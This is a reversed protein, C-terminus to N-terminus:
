IIVICPLIISSVNCFALVMMSLPHGVTKLYVGFVADPHCGPKLVGQSIFSGKRFLDEDLASFLIQLCGNDGLPHLTNQPICFSGQVSALSRLAAMARGVLHPVHIEGRCWILHNLFHLITFDRWFLTSKNTNM